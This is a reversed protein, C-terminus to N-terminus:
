NSKLQQKLEAAIADMRSRPSKRFHREKDYKFGFGDGKFRPFVHLHCHFVEQHAAEGDALFLNVGECKYASKRLAANMKAAVAMMHQLTEADVDKMYPAHYKPIVLLHGENVPYLDVFVAVIEDEYIMSVPMEGKLIKCFVCNEISEKETM